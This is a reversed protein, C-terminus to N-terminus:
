RFVALSESALLSRTARLRANAACASPVSLQPVFGSLTPQEASSRQPREVRRYGSAIHIEYKMLGFPTIEIFASLVEPSAPGVEFAHWPHTRFHSVVAM